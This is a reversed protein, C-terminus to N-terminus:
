RSALAKGIHRALEKGLATWNGDFKVTGDGYYCSQDSGDIAVGLVDIGMKRCATVADTLASGANGLGGQAYVSPLGDSVVMIVGREGRKLTRQMRTALAILAHGDANGGGPGSWTAVENFVRTPTGKTWRWKMTLSKGGWDGASHQWVDLNVTPITGLAKAITAGFVGAAEKRTCALPHKDEQGPIPLVAGYGSMSGSADILVAVRVHTTSAGTKRKFIDQAGRDARM